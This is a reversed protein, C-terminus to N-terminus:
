CYLLIVALLELSEDGINKISHGKGDGTLVADGPGVKQLLDDDLVEGRGQLIYYIEEEDAHEHFGISNGPPISIKSFLRCKGKLEEKQFLHTFHIEGFGGRMKERSEQAMETSFKIM